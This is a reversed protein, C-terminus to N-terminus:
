KKPKPVIKALPFLLQGGQQPDEYYYYNPAHMHEWREFIREEQLLTEMFEEKDEGTKQPDKSEKEIGGTSESYVSVISVEWPLGNIYFVVFVQHNDGQYFEWKQEIKFPIKEEPGFGSRPSFEAEITKSFSGLLTGSAKKEVIESEALSGPELSRYVVSASEGKKEVSLETKYRTTQSGGERQTTIVDELTTTIVISGAEKGEKIEATETVHDTTAPTLAVEEDYSVSVAFPRNAPDLDPNTLYRESVVVDVILASQKLLLEPVYATQLHPVDVSVSNSEPYTTVRSIVRRRQGEVRGRITPDVKDFRAKNGPPIVKGRPQQVLIQESWATTAMSLNLICISISVFYIISRM